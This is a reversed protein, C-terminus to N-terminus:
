LGLMRYLKVIGLWVLVATIMVVGITKERMSNIIFGMGINLIGLFSIAIMVGSMINFFKQLKAEHKKCVTGIAIVAGCKICRSM